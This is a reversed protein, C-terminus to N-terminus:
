PRENLYFFGAIPDDFMWPDHCSTLDQRRVFSRFLLSEEQHSKTRGRLLKCLHQYAWYSEDHHKMPNSEDLPKSCLKFASLWEPRCESVPISLIAQRDFFVIWSPESMHELSFSFM